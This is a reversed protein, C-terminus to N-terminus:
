KGFNALLSSLDSLNIMGDGTIDGTSRTQNNKGFNALLISLDSLNISLDGNLDGPKTPTPSPQQTTPTATQSLQKLYVVSGGNASLTLSVSDSSTFQQSTIAIDTSTTGDKYMTAQYTGSTFSLPIM